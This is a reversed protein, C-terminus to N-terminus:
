RWGSLPRWESCFSFLLRRLVGAVGSYACNEQRLACLALTLLLVTLGITFGQSGLSVLISPVLGLVIAVAVLIPAKAVVNQISKGETM